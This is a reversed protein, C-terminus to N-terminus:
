PKWLGEEARAVEAPAESAVCGLVLGDPLGLAGVGDELGQENAKM